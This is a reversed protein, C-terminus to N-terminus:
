KKSKRIPQSPPPSHPAEPGFWKGTPLWLEYFLLWEATWPVITDAFYKQPTWSGDRPFYLCLSGDPYRHPVRTDLAPSEVLVRPSKTGRWDLRVRYIPSDEQPQLEGRWVPGSATHSFHFSPFQARLRLTHLAPTLAPFRGFHHPRRSM